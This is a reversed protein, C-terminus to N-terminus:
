KRRHALLLSSFLLIFWSVSGGGSGNTEEAVPPSVVTVSRPVAHSEPSMELGSQRSAVETVTGFSGSGFYYSLAGANPYYDVSTGGYAQNNGVFAVKVESHNSLWSRPFSLEVTKNSFRPKTAGVKVWSWNSGNGNYRYLSEGHAMYDAGIASNLRYGTAPNNDVDLYAQWGWPLEDGSTNDPDVANRGEYVLYVTDSSHAIGARKLDIRDNSGYPVDEPDDLFLELGNWDSGNGNVTMQGSIVSNSIVGNPNDEIVSLTVTAINSDATGDSVRYSFYDTGIFGSNPTYTVSLANDTFSLSGHSPSEVIDLTLSDGDADSADLNLNERSDQMLSINQNKALPVINSNASPGFEYTFFRTNASASLAGDPYVDLSDGGYAQNAGQYVVRMSEPNGILSRSFKLEAVAGQYRSTASALSQWSWTSGTGTYQRIRGGELLYDAGISDSLKFGTSPDNDTDMFVQWGWSLHSGSDNDLDVNAHSRHLLYVEDSDHAVAADSWDIVNNSDNAVDDPDSQYPYLSLWDSTDGDLTIASDGVLNSLTDRPSGEIANFAVVGYVESGDELTVPNYGLQWFKTPASADRAIIRYYYSGAVHNWPLTYETADLEKITELVTGADFTATTSVELDYQIRADTLTEAAKWKFKVTGDDNVAPDNLVFPMPDGIHDLFRQYNEEVKGALSNFVNNYSALREPDNNGELYLKDIDPSSSILPFVVDYYSSAKQQLKAPTLYKNKLELAAQKLLELNGPQRLFQQHLEQGWWNAHSQTWRPMDDRTIYNTDFSAGLSLDYDWPVMYFKESGKPNYLYYNHFGTDDNALLINVALWTLYNDKNFYKNFVQTTFDLDPNNLDKLMAVFQTHDKGRKIEMRAEFADEDLPKGDADLEFAAHDRFYFRESKYVGSDDDWGRRQLYEKGFYEVQTYLGHEEVTGQDEISLDIFQTRMSPLNPIDQFLDYSLKNRIRSFDNFSKLLQIRREGNWLGATKDLKVRFSKQPARRSTAGRQRMEANSISGDDPFEDSTVKVRIEPTFDDSGDIDNLVDNLTCGDSVESDCAGSGIITKINMSLRNPAAQNYTGVPEILDSVTTSSLVDAQAHVAYLSCATLLLVRIPQHTIKIM